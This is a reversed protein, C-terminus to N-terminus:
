AGLTVGVNVQASAVASVQCAVVPSGPVAGLASTTVTGGDADPNVQLGTSVAAAAVPLYTVGDSSGEITVVVSHGAAVANLGGAVTRDVSVTLPPRGAVSAQSAVVSATGPMLTVPATGVTPM